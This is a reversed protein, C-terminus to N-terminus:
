SFRPFRPVLSLGHCLRSMGYSMLSSKTSVPGLWTQARGCRDVGVRVAAMSIVVMLSFM